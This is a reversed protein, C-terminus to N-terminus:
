KSAWAAIQLTLCVSYHDSIGVLFLCPIINNDFNYESSQIVNASHVLLGLYNLIHQICCKVFNM